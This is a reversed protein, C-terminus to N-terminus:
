NSGSPGKDGIQFPKNWKRNWELLDVASEGQDDKLLPDGGKAILHQLTEEEGTEAAFHLATRRNKESQLNPNAGLELLLQVMPLNGIFSCDMLPTTGFESTTEVSAGLRALVRVLKARGEVALYHLLTETNPGTQQLIAGDEKALRDFAACDHGLLYMLETFKLKM